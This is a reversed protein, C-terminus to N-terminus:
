IVCIRCAQSISAGPPTSTAIAGGPKVEVVPTFFNFSKRVSTLSTPCCELLMKIDNNKTSKKIVRLRMGAKVTLHSVQSLFPKLSLPEFLPHDDPDLFISLKKIPAPVRSFARSLPRFELWQTFFRTEAGSKEGHRREGHLFSLIHDFVVTTEFLDLLTLKKPAFAPTLSTSLAQSMAGSDPRTGNETWSGQQDEQTHAQGDHTDQALGGQPNDSFSLAEFMEELM